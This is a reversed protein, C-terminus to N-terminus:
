TRKKRALRSNFKKAISRHKPCLAPNEVQTRILDHQWHANFLRCGDTDCFPEGGTIFFFLAQLACGAAASATTLAYTNLDDDTWRQNLPNM